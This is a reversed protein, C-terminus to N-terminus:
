QSENAFQGDSPQSLSRTMFVKTGQGPETEVKFNSMFSQMFVFGFGMREPKTSFAPQLALDLDDIGRGSDEVSIHLNQGDDISASLIVVQTSDNEYGHIIANSVAESIAVKIEDLDSLTFDLQSAFSAIVIRALAVNEPISLFEIKMTNQVKNETLLM